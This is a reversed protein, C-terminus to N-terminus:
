SRPGRPPGPPLLWVADRDPFTALAAAQAQLEPHADLVGAAALVSLGGAAVFREPDDDIAAQWEEITRGRFWGDSAGLVLHRDGRARRLPDLDDAGLALHADALAAAARDLAVDEDAFTTTGDPPTVPVMQDLATVAVLEADASPAVLWPGTSVVLTPLEVGEDAFRWRVDPGYLSTAYPDAVVRVDDAELALVLTGCLSLRSAGVCSVLYPGDDPDIAALTADITPAYRNEQVEIVLDRTERLAGVTLGVLVLSTGVVVARVVPTSWTAHPWRAAVVVALAFVLVALAFASAVWLCAVQYPSAAAEATARGAVLAGLGLAALAVLAGEALRRDARWRLAVGVLAGVVALAGLWAWASPPGSIGDGTSGTLDVTPPVVRGVVQTALEVGRRLGVPESAQQSDGLGWRLLRCLNGDEATLQQGIPLAWAVIGVTGAVVLPGIPAHEGARRRRLVRVVAVGAVVIGIAAVTVAFTTQAQVALSGTLVAWGLAGSTRDAVVAWAAFLFALFPLLALYPNWPRTFVEGGLAREIVLVAGMATVLLTTGGIRRALHAILGVAALHYTAVAVVLGASRFGSAAYVPALLVFPLPGPHNARAELSILGYHTGAGVTPPHTSAVDHIRLAILADDFVPYAGDRIARYAFAVLPVMAAAVAVLEVARRTRDGRDSATQDAEDM